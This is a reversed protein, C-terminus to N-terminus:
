AQNLTVITAWAAYKTAYADAVSLGWQNPGSVILWAAGTSHPMSMFQTIQDHALTGYAGSLKYAQLLQAIKGTPGGYSTSIGLATCAQTSPYWSEHGGEYCIVLKSFTKALAEWAPYVGVGNAGSSLALLTQSGAKGSGSLTGARIDNDLFALASAMNTPVASAYNDAAALLGAIATVGNNLYNADFNTCQAGSYYTAYSLVDSYDIPRNPASNYDQYGKAKYAPYITGSLDAGQLRYTSTAAVSAFAQFAMVRKLQASSRPAWAATALGMTQRHRLGYWGYMQRNNDTPFGLAAGRAAAWLTAPFNWNWIENGYEFLANLGSNLRDRVLQTLATVSADDMYASITCWFNANVRNAFAIQFEYPICPTQGGAQWLFAGLLRDYTLTALSNATIQGAVLPKCNRGNLIPVAGRGGSNITVSSSINASAFQLQIMEGDVYSTTADKQASCTYTDTGSTTGAWARPAWRQTSICISTQWPAVYRLQSVNGSNPNAWGMSRVTGPNLTQYLAVYNDDLMQEPTTAQDIATEDSLKCLVVKGLGQFTQGALFNFTVSNPVSTAFSFVVRANTGTVTLSYAASTPAFSTGSIVTFGPAGRALQITGTGTWKLVMQTSPTINSPMKIIGYINYQPTSTPYGNEDLIAPYAYGAASQLSILSLALNKFMGSEIMTGILVPRKITSSTTTTTTSRPAGFLASPPAYTAALASTALLLNRRTINM